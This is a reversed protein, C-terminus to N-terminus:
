KDENIRQTGILGYQMALHVLEVDGKLKLKKFIRYRYTNITKASLNLKESIEPAKHGKVIMLTVQLERGSLEDFPTQHINITKKEMIQQAIQPSVVYRQGNYVSHIAQIMENMSSEKTIYGAAGLQLLRSPHIDDICATIILVKTKPNLHLIKRTAELGGIGPMQLDMLVVDPSSSRVMEIGQEGSDAEGIVEIGAADGLMHRIGARILDHDDVILVKIM